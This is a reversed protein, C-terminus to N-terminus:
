DPIVAALYDRDAVPELWTVPSGDQWEQIAVHSMGTTDTAGHWHTEGCNCFVVDGAAISKKPGGTSQTWGEGSLVVLHQGLPHSHWNTRAGPEFTVIAASTRGPSAVEFLPDIRVDGTFWDRPGKTSPRTGSRFIRMQM